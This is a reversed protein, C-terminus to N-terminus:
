TDLEEPVVGQRILEYHLKKLAVRLRSKITSEPAGLVVSMESFPLDTFHRLVILERQSRSLRDLARAVSRRTERRRTEAIPAHEDAVPEFDLPKRHWWRRRRADRSVNLVIRYLWTSFAARPQYRHRAGYVRLFVEQSLDDVDASPGLLRALARRVRSQWREVLRDFSAANERSRSMLEHDTSPM